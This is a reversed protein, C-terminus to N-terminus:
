PAANWTSQLRGVGDGSLRWRRADNAMVVSLTFLTSEGSPMFLLQPAPPLALTLPLPQGEVTLQWSEDGLSGAVAGVAMKDDGVLPLWERAAEDWRYPQWVGVGIAMGRLEGRLQALDRQQMLASTLAAARQQQRASEVSGISLTVLSTLAAIIAVVVLVELLTLGAAIRRPSRLAASANM